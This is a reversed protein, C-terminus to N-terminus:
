PKFFKILEVSGMLCGLLGILGGGGLILTFLRHRFFYDKELPDVRSELQTSRKEHELLIQNAVAGQKVLDLTQAKIDKIDAHIQSLLDEFM